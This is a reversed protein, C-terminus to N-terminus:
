GPIIIAKAWSDHDADVPITIPKVWSHQDSEAPIRVFAEAADGGAELFEVDGQGSKKVKRRITSAGLKAHLRELYNTSLFGQWFFHTNALTKKIKPAGRAM